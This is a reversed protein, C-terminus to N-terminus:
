PALGVETSSPVPTAPDGDIAAAIDGELANLAYPLSLISGFSMAAAILADAYVERGQTHATLMKRMPRNILDPAEDFSSIWLLVDADLASLDEPSLPAFFGEPSRLAMVGPTLVFGLETLFRARTDINTFAGTEGGFHYAAVATRGAWDPHRAIADAFKADVEAIAEEARASTGTARGLTRTMEDWPTGYGPYKEDHMLVPAIQSLVEYEAQSIGSGIGLILDPQLAAVTELSVEGSIVTPEEGDLFPQAWPFVANPEDGFWYRLGIPVIGLALLPDGSTYGLSVVRTAPKELVFEGFAHVFRLEEARAPRAVACAALGALVARRSPALLHTM